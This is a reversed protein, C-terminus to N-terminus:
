TRFVSVSPGIGEMYIDHNCVHSHADCPIKIMVRLRKDLADSSLNDKTARLNDDRGGYSYMLQERHQLHQIRKTFWSMTLDKRTLGSSVLKSIRRAMKEIDPFDSIHPNANWASTEAAPEDKFPPLM